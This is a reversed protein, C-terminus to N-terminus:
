FPEFDMIARLKMRITAVQDEKDHCGAQRVAKQWLDVMGKQLEQLRRDTGATSSGAAATEKFTSSQRADAGGHQLACQDQVLVHKSQLPCRWRVLADCLLPLLVMRLRIAQQQALASTATSSRKSIEESHLAPRLAVAPPQAAAAFAVTLETMYATLRQDRDHVDLIADGPVIGGGFGLILPLAVLQAEHLVGQVRGRAASREINSASRAAEDFLPQQQLSPLQQFDVTAPCAGMLWRAANAAVAAIATCTTRMLDTSAPDSATASTAPQSLQAAASAARRPPHLTCHRQLSHFMFNGLQYPSVIDVTGAAVWVQNIRSYVPMRTIPHFEATCGFDPFLVGTSHM